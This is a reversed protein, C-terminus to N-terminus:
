SPWPRTMRPCPVLPIPSVQLIPTLPLWLSSGMMSFNPISMM